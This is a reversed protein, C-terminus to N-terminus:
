HLLAYNINCMRIFSNRLSDQQLMCPINIDVILTRCEYYRIYYYIVPSFIRRYKVTAHFLCINYDTSYKSNFPTMGIVTSKPFFRLSCLEKLQNEKCECCNDCLIFPPLIVLKYKMIVIFVIYDLVISFLFSKGKLTFIIYLQLKAQLLSEVITTSLIVQKYLEKIFLTSFPSMFILTFALSNRRQISLFSM